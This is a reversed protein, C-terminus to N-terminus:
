DDDRKERPISPTPAPAPLPAPAPKPTVFTTTTTPTEVRMSVPSVMVDSTSPTAESEQHAGKADESVTDHIRQLQTASAVLAVLFFTSLIFVKNEAFFNNM